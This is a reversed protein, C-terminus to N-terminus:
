TDGDLFKVMEVPVNELSGNPREIIATSYNGPGEALEEYDVGFQHFTAEGKGDEVKENYGTGQKAKWVYVIVKRMDTVVGQVSLMGYLRIILM